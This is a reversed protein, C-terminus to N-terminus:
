IIIGQVHYNIIQYINRVSIEINFIDKYLYFELLCSKGSKQAFRQAFGGM